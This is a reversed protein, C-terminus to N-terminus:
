HLRNFVAEYYHGQISKGAPVLFMSFKGLTKHEVEYTGQHLQTGSPGLFMASFCEKTALGRSRKTLKPKWDYIKILKTRISGVNEATVWFETKLCQSFANRDLVSAAGASNRLADLPNFSSNTRHLVEAAAELPLGAALVVLSGTGIFKRRSIPM